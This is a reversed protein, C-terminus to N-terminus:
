WKYKGLCRFIQGSVGDGMAHGFFVHIYTSCGPCRHSGIIGKGCGGCTELILGGNENVILLGVVEEDEEDEEDELLSGLELIDEGDGNDGHDDGNGNDGDVGGEM